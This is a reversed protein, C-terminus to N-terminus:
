CICIISYQICTVNRGSVMVVNLHTTCEFPWAILNVWSDLRVGIYKNKECQRQKNLHRWVCVSYFDMLEFYSKMARYLVKVIERRNHVRTPQMSQSDCYRQTKIVFKSCQSASNTVFYVSPDSFSSYSCFHSTCSVHFFWQLSYCVFYFYVSATTTSLQKQVNHFLM